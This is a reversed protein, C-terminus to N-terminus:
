REHAAASGFRLELSAGGKVNRSRLPLVISKAPLKAGAVRRTCLHHSRKLWAPTVVRTVLGAHYGTIDGIYYIGLVGM